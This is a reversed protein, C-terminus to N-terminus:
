GHNAEFVHVGAHEEVRRVHVDLAAGALIEDCAHRLFVIFLSQPLDLLGFRLWEARGALRQHAASGNAELVHLRALVEM